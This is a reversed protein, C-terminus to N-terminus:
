LEPTASPPWKCYFIEYSPKWFVPLKRRRLCYTDPIFRVSLGRDAFFSTIVDTDPKGECVYLVDVNAEATQIFQINLYKAQLRNALNLDYVINGDPSRITYEIRPIFTEIARYKRGCRCVQIEPSLVMLDDIPWIPRQTLNLLNVIGNSTPIFTPLFHKIGYQCTYFHMTTTWNVMNNNFHIRKPPNAFFGEWNTSMASTLNSHNLYYRFIPDSLLYLWNNPCSFLACQGIQKLQSILYEVAGPKDLRAYILYHHPITAGPCDREDTRFQEVTELMPMALTVYSSQLRYKTHDELCKLWFDTNPGFTINRFNGTTGGSTFFYDVLQLRIGAEVRLPILEELPTEFQYSLIKDWLDYANPAIPDHYYKQYADYLM